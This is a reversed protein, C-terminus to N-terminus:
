VHHGGGLRTLAVGVQMGLCGARLFTLQRCSTLAVIGQLDQADFGLYLRRLGTLQALGQWGVDDWGEVEDDLILSLSTLRCLGFLLGVTNNCGTWVDAFAEDPEGEVPTNLDLVELAPCGEVLAHVAAPNGLLGM